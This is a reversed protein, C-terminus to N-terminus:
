PSLARRFESLGLMLSQPAQAPTVANARALDAFREAAPGAEAERKEFKRYATHEDVPPGVLFFHIWTEINRRPVLWSVRDGTERKSVAEEICVQDLEQFRQDVTENDADFLVVLAVDRRAKETRLAKLEAAFNM